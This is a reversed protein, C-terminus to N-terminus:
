KHRLLSLVVAYIGWWFNLWGWSNNALSRMSACDSVVSGWLILKIKSTAIRKLTRLRGITLVSHMWIGEHNKLYKEKKLDNWILTLYIYLLGIKCDKTRSYHFAVTHQLCFRLKESNYQWESLILIFMCGLIFKFRLQDDDIKQFISWALWTLVSSM